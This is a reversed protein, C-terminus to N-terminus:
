KNQTLSKLVDVLEPLEETGKFHASRRYVEGASKHFGDPLGAEAFTSAIEDMEGAFRWAKATVRRVRHNTKEVFDEDDRAWEKELDGRVGLNEATALIASLLASTGKTYAAYCMKLASAKGIGGDLVETALPGAAFCAAVQEASDGSLYLYTSDPEWAPGGIVGGDVFNIQAKSLIEEIRQARRPAIANADVYLGSFGGDVVQKAVDEAADPPCISVIIDCEECLNALTMADTLNHKEARERTDQSRGESVWYAKHGSNQASAALSIGMAGPHLFGINLQYM